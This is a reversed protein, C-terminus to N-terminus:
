AIITLVINNKQGYKQGKLINRHALHIGHCLDRMKFLLEVSLNRKRCFILGETFAM